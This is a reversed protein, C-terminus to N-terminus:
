CDNKHEKEKNTQNQNKTPRGRKPKKEKPIIKLGTVFRTSAKFILSNTDNEDLPQWEDKGKDKTRYEMMDKALNFRVELGILNFGDLLMEKRHGTTKQMEHHPRNWPIFIDNNGKEDQPRNEEVWDVIKIVEEEPKPNHCMSQNFILGWRILSDRDLKERFGVRVIGYVLLDHRGGGGQKWLENIIEDTYPADDKFYHKWEDPVYDYRSIHANVQNKNPRIIKRGDETVVEVPNYSSKHTPDDKDIRLDSYLAEEINM